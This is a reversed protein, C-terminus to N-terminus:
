ALAAPSVTGPGPETRAPRGAELAVARELAKGMPATLPFFTITARGKPTKAHLVYGTVRPLLVPTGESWSVKAVRARFWGRCAFVARGPVLAV